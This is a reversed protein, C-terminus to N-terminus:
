GSVSPTEEQIEPLNDIRVEIRRVFLLVFIVLVLAIFLLARPNVRIVLPETRKREVPQFLYGKKPITRITGNSNRALIRRLKSIAQTLGQDNAYKYGWVHELLDTRSVMTGKMKMLLELVGMEKPTLKVKQGGTEVENTESFLRIDKSRFKSFM